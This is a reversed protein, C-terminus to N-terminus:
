SEFESVSHGSDLMKAMVGRLSWSKTLNYDLEVLQFLYINKKNLPM